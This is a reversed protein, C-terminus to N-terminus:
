EGNNVSLIKMYRAVHCEVKHQRGSAVIEKVEIPKIVIEREEGCLFEFSDEIRSDLPNM